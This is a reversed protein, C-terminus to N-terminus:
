RLNFDPCTMEVVKSEGRILRSAIRTDLTEAIEQMTLNSTLITWKRSRGNLVDLLKSVGLKRPDHEAGIDDLVVLWEDVLAEVSGFEGNYIQTMCKSWTRFRYDRCSVVNPQPMYQSGLLHKKFFGVIEKAVHTKGTGSYGVLSLWYPPQNNVM